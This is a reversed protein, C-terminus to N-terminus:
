LKEEREPLTTTEQQEPAAPQAMVPQEMVPQVPVPQVAAPEEAPPASQPQEIVPPEAAPPEPKPQEPAPKEEAAPLAPFANEALLQELDDRLRNKMRRLAAIKHTTDTVQLEAAPIPEGFVIRIKCFMHMRGDKSGYIIRCPVMDAGAAGAIVFAGSKLVGLKGTKTRTGEPFILVGTGNKCQETLRELTVTDGKGRDISVAGMCRLFWGALPNKFLEEKAPIYLRRWSFVEILIFVPDLNAIHNAAIVYPRGDQVSKLNERGIVEFRWLIHALVWVIPLLIWYLLM